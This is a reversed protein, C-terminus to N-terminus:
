FPIEDDAAFRKANHDFDAPMPVGLKRVGRKKLLALAAQLAEHYARVEVDRDRELRTHDRRTQDLQRQTEHLTRMDAVYDRARGEIHKILSALGRESLVPHNDDKM